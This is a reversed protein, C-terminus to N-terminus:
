SLRLTAISHVSDKSVRYLSTTQVQVGHHPALQRGRPDTANAFVPPHTVLFDSYSSDREQHRPQQCEAGRRDDNEVLRRMLGNQMALLQELSILLRPPPPPANGCRARGHERGTSGEPIDLIPDESTRTRV